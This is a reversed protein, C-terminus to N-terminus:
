SWAPQHRVDRLLCPIRLTRPSHVWNCGGSGSKSELICSRSLGPFDKFEVEEYVPFGLGLSPHPTKGLDRPLHTAERRLQSAQSSIFCPEIEIAPFDTCGVPEGEEERAPPWGREESGDRSLEYCGGGALLDQGGDPTPVQSAPTSAGSGPLEKTAKRMKRM